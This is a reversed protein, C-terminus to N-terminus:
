VKAALSDQSNFFASHERTPHTAGPVTILLGQFNRNFGLPLETVQKSELLRGTDARDTQLPPAGGAEITVTETVEGVEMVLDVRVTTNVDVMVNERIVKKFGKLSAEVRYVGEKINSFVYNGDANTTTSTSINTRVETITVTANAAAAGVSDAITGLLS